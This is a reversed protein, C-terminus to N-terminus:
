SELECIAKKKERVEDKRERVERGIREEFLARERQMEESINYEYESIRKNLRTKKNRMNNKEV